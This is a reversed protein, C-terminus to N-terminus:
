DRSAPRSSSTGTPLSERRGDDSFTSEGKPDESDSSQGADTLSPVHTPISELYAEDLADEEPTLGYSKVEEDDPVELVAVDGAPRKARSQGGAARASSQKLHVEQLALLVEELARTRQSLDTDRRLKNAAESLEKLLVDRVACEKNVHALLEEFEELFPMRSDACISAPDPLVDPLSSLAALALRQTLLSPPNGAALRRAWAAQLRARLAVDVVQMLVVRQSHYDAPAQVQGIRRLQGKGVWRYITSRSVGFVERLERVTLLSTAIRELAAAQVTM